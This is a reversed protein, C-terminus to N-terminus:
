AYGGIVTFQQNRYQAICNREPRVPRRQCGARYHPLIVKHPELGHVCPSVFQNGCIQFLNSEDRIAQLTIGDGDSRSIV